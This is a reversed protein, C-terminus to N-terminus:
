VLTLVTKVRVSVTVRLAPCSLSFDMSCDEEMKPVSTSLVESLAKGYLRKYRYSMLEFNWPLPFSM